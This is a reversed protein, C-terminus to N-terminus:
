PPGFIPGSVIAHLLFRFPTDCSLSLSTAVVGSVQHSLIDRFNEDVLASVTTTKERVIKRDVYLLKQSTLTVLPLILKCVLPSAFCDPTGEEPEWDPDSFLERESARTILKWCAASTFNRGVPEHFMTNWTLTGLDKCYHNLAQASLHSLAKILLPDSTGDIVIMPFSKGTTSPSPPALPHTYQGEDDRALYLMTFKPFCFHIQSVNPPQQTMAPRWQFMRM